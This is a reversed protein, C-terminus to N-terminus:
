TRLRLSPSMGLAVSASLHQESYRRREILNILSARHMLDGAALTDALM